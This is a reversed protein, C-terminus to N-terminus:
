KARHACYRAAKGLDLACNAQWFELVLLNRSAFNGDVAGRRWVLRPKQYERGAPVASVGGGSLTTNLGALFYKGVNFGVDGYAVLYGVALRDGHAGVVVRNIGTHRIRFRLFVGLAM